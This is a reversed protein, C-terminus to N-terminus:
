AQERESRETEVIARRPRPIWPDDPDSASEESFPAPPLHITWPQEGGEGPEPSHTYPLRTAMSDEQPQFNTPFSITFAGSFIPDDDDPFVHKINAV